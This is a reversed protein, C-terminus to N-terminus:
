RGPCLAMENAFMVFPWPEFGTPLLNWRDDATANRAESVPTTM